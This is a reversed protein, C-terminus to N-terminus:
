DEKPIQLRQTFLMMWGRRQAAWSWPAAQDSSLSSIAQLGLGLHRGRVDMGAALNTPVKAPHLDLMPAEVLLLGTTTGVAFVQHRPPIWNRELDRVASAASEISRKAMPLSPDQAFQSRLGNHKEVLSSLHELDMLMAEWRENWAPPAGIGGMAPAPWEALARPDWDLFSKRFGKTPKGRGDTSYAPSSEVSDVSCSGFVSELGIGPAMHQSSKHM